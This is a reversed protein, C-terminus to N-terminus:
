SQGGLQNLYTVIDRLRNFHGQSCTGCNQYFVLRKQVLCNLNAGCTALAGKAAGGDGYGANVYWDFMFIAVKAPWRYAGSKIWFLNQYIAKMQDDSMDRCVDGPGAGMSQRWANYTSNTVGKYTRVPDQTCRSGEWRRMFQFALEWTTGGTTTTSPPAQAAAVVTVPPVLLWIAVVSTALSTTLSIAVVKLTRNGLWLVFGMALFFLFYGAVLTQAPVGALGRLLTVLRAEGVVVQSAAGTTATALTRGGLSVPDTPSNKARCQTFHCYHVLASDFYRSVPQHVGNYDINLHVHPWSTMGTRGVNCLQTTADVAQGVQVRFSQELCHAYLSSYGQGHDVVIHWGYGGETTGPSARVTRVVGPGISYVPSGVAASWDWALTPSGRGSHDRENSGILRSGVPAYWGPVLSPVRVGYDPDASQAGVGVPALALVLAGALGWLGRYVTM